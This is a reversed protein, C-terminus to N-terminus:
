GRPDMMRPTALIPKSPVMKLPFIKLSKKFIKRAKKKSIINPPPTPSSHFTHVPITFSAL